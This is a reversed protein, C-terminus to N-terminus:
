KRVHVHYAGENQQEERLIFITDVLTEDAIRKHEALTKEFHQIINDKFADLYALVILMGVSESPLTQSILSIILLFCASLIALWSLM